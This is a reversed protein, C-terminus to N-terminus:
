RGCDPDNCEQHETGALFFFGFCRRLLFGFRAVCGLLRRGGRGLRGLRRRRLGVRLAVGVETFSVHVRAPRQVRERM